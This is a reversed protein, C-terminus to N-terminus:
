GVEQIFWRADLFSSAEFSSIRELPNRTNSRKDPAYELVLSVVLFKTPLIAETMAAVFKEMRIFLPDDSSDCRLGYAVNLM